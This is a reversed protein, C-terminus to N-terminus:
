IITSWFIIRSWCYGRSYFCIYLCLSIDRLIGKYEKKSSKASIIKSIALPLSYSSIILMIDYIEFAVSYLGNGEEGIINSMPFRYLMGIIRVVLSAAALITGQKIYNDQKGNKGSM